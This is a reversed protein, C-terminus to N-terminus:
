KTNQMSAQRRRIKWVGDVKVYEDTYIVAGIWSYDVSSRLEVYSRGTARGGGDLEVVHNHAFPRPTMRKMGDVYFTRLQERGVPARGGLPGNLVEITGDDTFLDVVAAVDDRWISDNYRTIVERIAERDLLDSVQAEGTKIMDAVEETRSSWGAAATKGWYPRRLERKLIKGTTNRPLTDVFDVSRPIKFRAIRTRGFDLLEKETLTSGSRRVVIAKPVEGWREDPVGIVAVDAVDPHAYLADEIEGPYINEGGSIIMDKVRDCIYLYGDADFYGADGTRLWGDRITEATAEPNRWYGVMVQRGRCTVEGITGTPVVNGKADCIQVSVAPLPRGASKLRNGVLNAHDETSLYAITGASETMGYGQALSCGLAEQARRVLGEPAPAAGYIILELSSVDTSSCAPDEIMMKMMVSALQAKTIRHRQIIELVETTKFERTLVSEAGQWLGGLGWISAGIHYQPMCVLIVDHERWPGWAPLAGRLAERLNAHTLLAGKPRGTTGSTYMQVTVSEASVAIGPDEDSYRDRWAAYDSPPYIAEDLTITERLDPVDKRISAVADLYEPSVFLLEAGSDKLIYAVEVPALRYNIPVLVADIKAAGLVLDYFSVTNKALVAIRSQPRVQAALFARAARNSRRDVDAFTLREGLFNVAVRDPARRAHERVREVITPLEGEIRM